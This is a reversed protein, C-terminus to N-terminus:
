PLNPSRMALRRQREVESNLLKFTGDRVISQLSEKLENGM